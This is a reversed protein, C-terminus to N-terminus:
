PGVAPHIISHRDLHPRNFYIRVILFEIKILQLHDFVPLSAMSSWSGLGAYKVSLTSKSRDVAFGNLMADVENRKFFMRLM